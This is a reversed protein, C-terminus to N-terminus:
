FAYCRGFNKYLYRILTLKSDFQLHEVYYNGGESPEYTFMRINALCLTAFAKESVNDTSKSIKQFIKFSEDLIDGIRKVQKDTLDKSLITRLWKTKGNIKVRRVLFLETISFRVFLRTIEKMRENDINFSIKEIRDLLSFLVESKKLAMAAITRQLIFGLSEPELKLGEEAMKFAEELKKDRLLNATKIFVIKGEKSYPVLARDFDKMFQRDFNEGQHTLYYYHMLDEVSYEPSDQIETLEDDIFIAEKHNVKDERNVREELEIYTKFDGIGLCLKHYITFVPEYAAIKDTMKKELEEQELLNFEHAKKIYKNCKEMDGM